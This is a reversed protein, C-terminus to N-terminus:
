RIRAVPTAAEATVPIPFGTSPRLIRALYEGIREVEASGSEVRITTAATITFPQGDSFRLEAPAPIVTHEV